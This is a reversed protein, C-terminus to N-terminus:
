NVAQKYMNRIRDSANWPKERGAFLIIRCAPPLRGRGKIHAYQYVGQDNGWTAAGPLKHSLWSQDSGYYSKGAHRGTQHKQNQAEGAAESNLDTWVEPNRGPFALWMSGNYPSSIGRVIGFQEGQAFSTMDGLILVDLDISLVKEGLVQRAEESFAWMRMYCNPRASAQCELGPPSPPLPLTEIEIGEPKNTLCVLRHPIRIHKTVMRAWRNVTEATYVPRWGRWLWCCITVPM